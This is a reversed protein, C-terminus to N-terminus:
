VLPPAPDTWAHALRYLEAARNFALAAAAREAAICAFHVAREPVGAAHFHLATVEPDGGEREFAVALRQHHEVLTAHDIQALVALRVRDHYCEITDAERAGHTRVLHQARLPGLAAHDEGDIGATAFALNQPVPRGAVAVLELLRRAPAPLGDLRAFVLQELSIERTDGRRRSLTAHRVLEEVFLPNGESELAIRAAEALAAQDTRGMRLMALEEAQKHTLPAIFVNRVDGRMGPREYLRQLERLMPSGAAEDSRYSGLM